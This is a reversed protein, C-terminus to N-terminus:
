AYARSAYQRGSEIMEDIRRDQELGEEGLFKQILIEECKEIECDDLGYVRFTAEGRQERGQLVEGDAAIVQLDQIDFQPEFQREEFTHYPNRSVKGSIRVLGHAELTTQTSITRKKM